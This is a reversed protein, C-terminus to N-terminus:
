SGASYTFIWTVAPATTQGQNSSNVIAAQFDVDTESAYGGDACETFDGAVSAGTPTLDNTFLRLTLTNLYNIQLELLDDKKTHRIVIAM